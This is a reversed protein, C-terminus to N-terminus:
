RMGKRQHPPQEQCVGLSWRDEQRRAARQRSWQRQRLQQLPLQKLQLLVLREPWCRKGARDEASQRQYTWWRQSRRRLEEVQPPRRQRLLRLEQLRLQPEVLWTRRQLSLYLCRM